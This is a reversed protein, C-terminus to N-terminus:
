VAVHANNKGLFSRRSRESYEQYRALLFHQQEYLYEAQQLGSNLAERANLMEHFRLEEKYFQTAELTLKPSDLYLNEGACRPQRRYLLWHGSDVAAQQHRAGNRPAVGHAPSHCYALVISPGEHAAAEELAKIAQEPDASLAVSAVYVGPYRMAHWGLDMKNAKKGASAMGATAGKPTARSQQGGTNSYLENDLVLININKGTSLAHDLGGFGIDYAWGDGGVIWVDKPMLDTACSELEWAEPSDIRKLHLTLKEFQELQVDPTGCERGSELLDRVLAAPLSPRLKQLLRKARNMKLDLSSRFGLGFEANDEFLSNSWAPGHGNKNAIWPLAPVHGGFISGSGTANAILLREGFQQSLLKYYQGQACGKVGRPYRFLPEAFQLRGVSNFERVTRNGVKVASVQESQLNPLAEFEKWQKRHSQRDFEATEELAKEPCEEVCLGCSTCQDPNIAIRFGFLDSQQELAKARLAGSPCVLSCLGCATCSDADWSPIWAVTNLPNEQVTNTQFAGDLGATLEPIHMPYADGIARANNQVPGQALDLLRVPETISGLWTDIEQVSGSIGSSLHRTFKAFFAAVDLPLQYITCNHSAAVSVPIGRTWLDPSAQDSNGAVVVISEATLKLYHAEAMFTALSDTVWLTINELAYPAQVPSSALRMDSSLRAEAKDYSPYDFRQVFMGEEQFIGRCWNGLLSCSEETKDLDLHIHFSGPDTTMKTPLAKGVAGFRDDIFAGLAGPSLDKGGIGYRFPVVEPCSHAPTQQHLAALIDLHLPDGTAGTEATRDMVLIRKTSGPLANLFQTVGFPRYLRVKILGLKHGRANKRRIVESATECSSGMTVLVTDAEPHGLYEFPKYYRGTLAGFRDMVEQVIGPCSEHFPIQAERTAAYRDPYQSTGRVSPNLPDLARERHARAAESPHLEKLINDPIPNVANWEHSTRFGDFFHIFPLRSELTALHAIAAFDQAEQVTAAGLMAFGSQRVAMIDSHDPFISLAHTAIARTAVHIVGPTLEGAIKYLNPLMLLLGQSATFTTAFTGTQLAGHLTGAAGAESQLQLTQPVDGFINKQGSASLAEVLESMQSTPTIPYLPFFESLKYAINAVAQYGTQLIYNSTTM